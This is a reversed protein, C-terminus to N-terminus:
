GRHLQEYAVLLGKETGLLTAYDMTGAAALMRDRGALNPCFMVVHKPTEWGCSCRVEVDPVGVRHLFGNLGIAETRLLTAMTSEPKSLSAHLRPVRVRWPTRWGPTQEGLFSVAMAEEVRDGALHPHAGKCGHPRSGVPERSGRAGRRTASEAAGNGKRQGRYGRKSRDKGPKPPEGNPHTAAAATPGAKAPAPHQLSAQYCGDCAADGVRAGAAYRHEPRIALPARYSGRKGVGQGPRAQLRGHDEPPVQETAKRPTLTPQGASAEGERGRSL